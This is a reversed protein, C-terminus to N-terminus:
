EGGYISKYKELIEKLEEKRDSNYNSHLENHCSHCLPILNDKYLRKNWDEKVEIIHHVVDHSKLEKYEMLCRLCLGNYKIKIYVSLAKWEVSNYFKAYKKNEETNRVNKNYKKYREKRCDCKSGQPIRRGCGPCKSFIPM